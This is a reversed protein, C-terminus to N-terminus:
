GKKMPADHRPLPPSPSTMTPILLPLSKLVPRPEMDFEPEYQEIIPGGPAHSIELVINDCNRPPCRRAQQLWSLLCTEHYYYQRALFHAVRTEDDFPELCPSCTVLDSM